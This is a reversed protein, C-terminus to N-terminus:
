IGVFPDSQRKRAPRYMCVPLFPTFCPGIKQLDPFNVLVRRISGPARTEDLTECSVMLFCKREILLRDQQRRIVGREDAQM